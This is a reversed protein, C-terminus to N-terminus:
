RKLVLGILRYFIYASFVGLCNAIFDFFECSRNSLIPQLIEIAAGITVIGLIFLGHKKKSHPLPARHYHETFFVFTLFAYMLSHILMDSRNFDFFSGTPIGGVEMFSLYLILIFAAIVFPHQKLIKLSETM